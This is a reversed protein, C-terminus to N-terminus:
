RGSSREKRIRELIGLNQRYETQMLELIESGRETLRYFKRPHGKNEDTEWWAHLLEERTMRNLLPYITGEKISLGYSSLAEILELGYLQKRVEILNLICLELYGRRMQAKWKDISLENM